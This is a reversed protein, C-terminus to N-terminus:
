FRPVYKRMAWFSNSYHTTLPFVSYRDLLPQRAGIPLACPHVLQQAEQSLASSFLHNLRAGCYLARRPLQACVRTHDPTSGAQSCLHDRALMNHQVVLVNINGSQTPRPFTRTNGSIPPLAVCYPFAWPSVAPATEFSLSQARLYSTHLQCSALSGRQPKVGRPSYGGLVRQPKHRTSVPKTVHSTTATVHSVHSHVRLLLSSHHTHHSM